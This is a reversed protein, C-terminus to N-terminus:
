LCPPKKDASTKPKKFFDMLFMLPIGIVITGLAGTGVTAGFALFFRWELVHFFFYIGFCISIILGLIFPTKEGESATGSKV